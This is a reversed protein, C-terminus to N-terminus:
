YAVAIAAILMLFLAFGIAWPLALQPSSPFSALLFVRAAPKRPDYLIAVRSGRPYANANTDRPIDAHAEVPLDEATRFRLNVVSCWDGGKERQGHGIVDATTRQARQRFRHDLLDAVGAVAIFGGGLAMMAITLWV